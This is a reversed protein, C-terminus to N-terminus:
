DSVMKDLEERTRLKIVPLKNQLFLFKIEKLTLFVCHFMLLM